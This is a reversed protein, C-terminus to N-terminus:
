DDEGPTRAKNAALTEAFNRRRELELSAREPFLQHVLPNVPYNPGQKGGLWGTEQLSQLTDRRQREDLHRWMSVSRWLQSVTLQMAGTALIYAAVTQPHKAHAVGQSLDVYFRAAHPFLLGQILHRVREAVDVSVEPAIVACGADACDAAHMVLALRAFAGEYKGVAAALGDPLTGATRYVWRLLEARVEQAEPSLNCPHAGPQMAALKTVASRYRDAAARDLPREQGANGARSIVLLFRALMGDETLNMKQVIRGLVSPQIAGAISAAWSKIFVPPAPAARDVMMQRSEYLRLLMPMDKSAGRNNSFADANGFVGALEPVAVLVKGRSNHELVGRLGELTFNDVLLRDSQVPEPAIPRPDLQKGKRWATLEDTYRAQADNFTQMKLAVAKRMETDLAVLPAIAIAQGADKKCSPNGVTAGWLVPREVYDPEGPKPRIGHSNHMAGSLALLCQLAPQVPDVGRLAAQDHIYEWLMPPLMHQEITPLLALEGDESWWDVPPPFGDSPEWSREPRTYPEEPPLPPPEDDQTHHAGGVSALAAMVADYENFHQHHDAGASPMPPTPSAEPLTLAVSTGATAPAPQEPYPVAVAKAWRLPHPPPPRPIEVSILKLSAAHPLAADALAQSFAVVSRGQLAHWDDAGNVYVAVMAPFLAAAVERQGESHCLLVQAKPSASVAESLTM